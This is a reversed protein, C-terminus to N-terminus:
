LSDITSSFSILPLKKRRLSKVLGLCLFLSLAPSYSLLSGISFSKEKGQSVQFSFLYCLGLFETLKIFKSRSKNWRDQSVVINLYAVRLFFLLCCSETTRREREREKLLQKDLTRSDYFFLFTDKGHHLSNPMSTWNYGIGRCMPITIEECRADKKVALVPGGSNVAGVSGSVSPVSAPGAVLGDVAWIAWCLTLTAGLWLLGIAM